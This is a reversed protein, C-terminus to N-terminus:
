LISFDNACLCLVAQGYTVLKAEIGVVYIVPIQEQKKTCQKFPLFSLM